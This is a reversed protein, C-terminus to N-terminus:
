PAHLRKKKDEKDAAIHLQCHLCKRLYLIVMGNVHFYNGCRPCTVVASLLATIILFVLWVGFVYGMARDTPSISHAIWLAPVYVLVTGFFYKRRRRILSLAPGFTSPDPTQAQPETM